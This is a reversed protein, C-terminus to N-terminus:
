SDLVDDYLANSYWSGDVAGESHQQPAGPTSQGSEHAEDDKEDTQPLPWTHPM